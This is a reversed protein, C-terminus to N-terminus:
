VVLPTRKYAKAPGRKQQKRRAPNQAGVAVPYVTGRIDGARRAGGIHRQVMWGMARPM